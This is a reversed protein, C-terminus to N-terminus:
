RARVVARVGGGLDLDLGSRLPVTQGPEIKQVTGDSRTGTWTERSRNALGFRGPKSPHEVLEAVLAADSCDHRAPEPLLHHAQVRAARRLRIHHETRPPPTTVTLRPPLVLRAGCGWCDRPPPNEGPETMNQRGCSACEVVADLVARLADRWESERVRAAPDRLGITFSRRFLERLKEAAAEWTALVTAHEMPDPANADDAPDFVFLPSRGYLKREAAEDLCHIGLERRGKLPHHNMLLMFLLVALSHLDSQTGPRAGPDARVLEPAMFEMTGSIGSADGEVVANDNDCVLVDGTDPDFFINGWSIDRYAIGRSHLAQYAEVTYLCATLLARPSTRLQRRFLAPLGKYRDPRLGMLYGFSGRHAPVFAEPWLFRDDAFDRTVLERVIAEQEATALTPYYWKLAREGHPTRVRYVEGQGGAGLFDLIEVDDGNEAALRVGGDLMGSM